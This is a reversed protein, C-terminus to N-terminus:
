TIIMSWRLLRGLGLLSGAPAALRYAPRQHGTREGFVAPGQGMHLSRERPEQRAFVQQGDGQARHCQRQKDEGGVAARGPDILAELHDQPLDEDARREGERPDQDKRTTLPQVEEQGAADEGDEPKLRAQWDAPEIEPKRKRCERDGRYGPGESRRRLGTESANVPSRSGEDRGQNHKEGGCAVQWEVRHEGGSAGRWQDPDQEGQRRKSHRDEDGGPGRTAPHARPKPTAAIM